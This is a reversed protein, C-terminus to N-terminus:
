TLFTRLLDLMEDVNETAEFDIGLQIYSPIAAYQRSALSKVKECLLILTKIISKKLEDVYEADFVEPMLIERSEWIHPLLKILKNAKDVKGLKLNLFVLNITATSRSKMILNGQLARELFSIAEEILATDNCSNSKQTLTSALALLLGSNNPQLKLGEKLLSVADDIQNNGVLRHVESHVRSINETSCIEEMGILEDISTNYFIAISPLLTIDPYATNNEWRSIAQPSVGLIEAIQEQTLEKKLRLRKLNEGINIRM